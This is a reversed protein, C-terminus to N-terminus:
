KTVQPRVTFRSYEGYDAHYTIVQAGREASYGGRSAHADKAALTQHQEMIIGASEKVHKHHRHGSHVYRYVTKGWEEAFQTAVLMPLAAVGVKHGHHVALLVKGHVYCYFPTPSVIVEVRKEKEYFAHFLEQGWCAGSLDHNGEAYLLVVKKHKKLLEQVAFRTIKIFIRVLKQYRSDQDLVNHSTPTVPSHGDSHLFDGQLNLFGTEADPSKQIMELLSSAFVEQAIKTDWDGGTEEEWCYMGLHFDTLTYLNILDKQVKKGAHKVAKVKPLDEKFSEVTERMLEAQREADINTKVWQIAPTGDKYLTSTGKVHFGDPAQHNMDYEPSVGQRAARAKLRRMAQDVTGRSLGLYASAKRNSGCKIVAELKSHDSENICFRKLYEM